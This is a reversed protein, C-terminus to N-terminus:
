DLTNTKGWGLKKAMSFAHNAAPVGAYIAVHMLAQRLQSENLPITKATKLHLELEGDRGLAALLAITILSREQRSIDTNGWLEGWALRTIMKQFPADLSTQNQSAREVHEKGLISKRTELGKTYHVEGFNGPKSATLLHHKLISAFRDPVEVSPVHGVGDLITPPAEKLEGALADLTSPPTAVDEQGGLLVVPINNANSKGLFNVKALMKCLAAYSKDDGAEMQIQWAKGLTPDAELRKPAFWRPVIEASVARLGENAVRDARALWNEPTGITAGTNTLTVSLLKEPHSHMLLQGIVGGISTGVFHFEDAGICSTLALLDEVLDAPAPTRDDHEWASSMGHGPLDWTLLRFDPLLSGLMEDWVTQNMGLPHAMALLPKEENGILRYGVM